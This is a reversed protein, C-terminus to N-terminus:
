FSITLLSERRSCRKMKSIFMVLYDMLSNTHLHGFELYTLAYVGLSVSSTEHNRGKRDRNLALM